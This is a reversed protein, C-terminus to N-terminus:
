KKEYSTNVKGAAEDIEHVKEEVLLELRRYTTELHEKTSKGEPVDTEIGLQVRATEFNGLNRVYAIDVTIRDQM